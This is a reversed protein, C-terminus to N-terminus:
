DGPIQGLASSTQSQERKGAEAKVEKSDFETQTGRASDRRGFCIKEACLVKEGFSVPEVTPAEFVKWGRETRDSKPDAM